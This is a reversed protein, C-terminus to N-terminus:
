NDASFIAQVPGKTKLVNLKNLEEMVLQKQKEYDERLDERVPHSPPIEVKLPDVYSGNMFFMFHLHPGTALGTSGVYGIVEGQIVTTGRKIGKGFRSMHLYMTSYVSNHRIKVFNGNGRTYSADVVVGDGVTRIPTGTPAAYDVGNHPRYVKLVPHFRRSSFRSSIRAFELPTKLFEKRLSNGEEDFYQYISDQVFPIAYYEKGYNYFYAGLIKGVGVMQNDVYEEEYIVRFNDGPQLRYFDIQWAYIQSMRIALEISADNEILAEYLSTKIEATKTKRVLTVEKKETYINISDTLDFVVYNIPDKLYVFYKLTNASDASYYTHFTKGSRIKRVSFINQSENAIESINTHQLNYGELIESLTENKEVVSEKHNLSDSFFGFQNPNPKVIVPKETTELESDNLSGYLIISSLVFISFYLIRFFLTKNKSVKM